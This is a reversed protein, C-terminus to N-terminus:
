HGHTADEKVRAIRLQVDRDQADPAVPGYFSVPTAYARDPAQAPTSGDRALVYWVSLALAFASLFAIFL